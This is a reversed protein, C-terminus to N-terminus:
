QASNGRRHRPRAGRALRRARAILPSRSRSCRRAARRRSSAEVRFPGVEVLTPRHRASRSRRDDADAIEPATAHSGVTRADRRDRARDAQDDITIVASCGGAPSRPTVASRIARDAHHLAVDRAVVGPLAGAARRAADGDERDIARQREVRGTSRRRARARAAVICRRSRSRVATAIAAADSPTAAYARSVEACRHERYCATFARRGSDARVVSTFATACMSEDADGAPRTSGGARLAAGAARECGRDVRRRARSEIDVLRLARTIARQPPSRHPRSLAIVRPSSAASARAAHPARASPAIAPAARARQPLAPRRELAAAGVHRRDSCGRGTAARRDGRRGPAAARRQIRRARAPRAGTGRAARAGRRRAVLGVREVLQEGRGIAREAHPEARATAVLARPAHARAASARRADLAARSSGSQRPSTSILVTGTARSGVRAAPADDLIRRDRHDLSGAIAFSCRVSHSARASTPSPSAVITDHYRSSHSASTARARAGSGARDRGFPGAPVSARPARGGCATRRRRRGARSASRARGHDDVLQADDARRLGVDHHGGLEDRTACRASPMRGGSGRM